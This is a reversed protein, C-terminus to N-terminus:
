TRWESKGLIRRERIRGINGGKGRKDIYHFSKVQKGMKLLDESIIEKSDLMELLSVM